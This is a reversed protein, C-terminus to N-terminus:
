RRAMRYVALTRDAIADWGFQVYDAAGAKRGLAERRAPDRILAALKAAFDNFDETRFLLGDQGDRVTERHTEIDSVLCPLGYSRAEILAIPHGELRSPLVFALANAFLEAKDNGKVTGTFVLGPDRGALAKLSRVYDDTGSSDGALVVQIGEPWDRRNRFAQILWDPRKEPVLRGLFLIYRGTELAYRDKMRALSRPTPPEIGNPIVRSEVGYRGRLYDGIQHSVAILRHPFRVAAWEAAKLAARAPTKWKDAQWDLRHITAVVRRGTWRPIASFAAPGIAHYHIIDAEALTAHVSAALSHITADLHKTHITPLHILRVGEHVALRGPSYWDRVYVIAEHGARVLARSLGDVHYEVGGSVAPMGKQGIFAIKM